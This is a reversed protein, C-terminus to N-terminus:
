DNYGYIKINTGEEFLVGGYYDGISITIDSIGDPPDPDLVLDGVGNVQVFGSEAEYTAPYSYSSATGYGPLNSSMSTLQASFWTRDFGGLGPATVTEGEIEFVVKQFGPDTPTAAYLSSDTQFDSVVPLSGYGGLTPAYDALRWEWGSNREFNIHVGLQKAPSYYGVDGPSWTPDPWDPQMYGKLRGHIEVRIKKFAQGFRVFLIQEQDIVPTTGVVGNIYTGPSTFTYDFLLPDPATSPGDSVKKWFPNTIEGSIIGASYDAHSMIGMDNQYLSNDSKLRAFSAQDNHYREWPTGVSKARWIGPHYYNKDFLVLDDVEAGFTVPNLTGSAPSTDALSSSVVDVAVCVRERFITYDREFMNNENRRWMDGRQNHGYASGIVLGKTNCKNVVMSVARATAVQVLPAGYTSPTAWVGALGSWGSGVMLVKQNLAIGADKYEQETMGDFDIVGEFHSVVADVEFYGADTTSAEWYGWGPSLIWMSRGINGLESSPRMQHQYLSIVTLPTGQWIWPDGDPRAEWVGHAMGDPILVFDGAVLNWSDLTLTGRLPHGVNFISNNGIVAKVASYSNRETAVDYDDYTGGTPTGHWIFLMGDPFYGKGLFGQWLGNAEWDAKAGSINWTNMDCAVPGYPSRRYRVVSPRGKFIWPADPAEPPPTYWVGSYPGWGRGYHQDSLVLTDTSHAIGWDNPPCNGVVPNADDTFIPSRLVQYVSRGTKYADLPVGDPRWLSNGFWPGGSDPHNGACFVIADHNLTVPEWPGSATVTYVGANTGCILVKNGPSLSPGFTNGSFTGDVPIVPHPNGSALVNTVEVVEQPLDGETLFDAVDDSTLFESLDLSHDALADLSAGSATDPNRTIQFLGPRGFAASGEHVVSSCYVLTGAFESSVAIDVARTAETGDENVYYFVPVRTDQGNLRVLIINKGHPFLFSTNVLGTITSKDGSFTAGSLVLLDESLYSLVRLPVSRDQLAGELSAAGGLPYLRFTAGDHSTYVWSSSVMTNIRHSAMHVSDEPPVRLDIAAHVLMGANTPQLPAYEFYGPRTCRYLKPNMIGLEDFDEFIMYSGVSAASLYVCSFFEEDVWEYNDEGFNANAGAVSTAVITTLHGQSAWVVEADSTRLSKLKFDALELVHRSGDLSNAVIALRIEDGNVIDLESDFWGRLLFSTPSLEEVEFTIGSSSFPNGFWGNLMSNDPAVAFVTAVGPFDLSVTAEFGVVKTGVELDFSYVAPMFEIDADPSTSELLWAPFPVAPLDAPLPFPPATDWPVQVIFEALGATPSMILALEEVAFATDTEVGTVENDVLERTVNVKLLHNDNEIGFPPLGTGTGGGEGSIGPLGSWATSGDGVKLTDTDSDYGLRGLALVRDDADWQATTRVLVGPGAPGQIGDTVVVVRSM